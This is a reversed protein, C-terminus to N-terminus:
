PNDPGSDHKDAAAILLPLAANLQNRVSEIIEPTSREIVDHLAKSLLNELMGEIKWSIESQLERALDDLQRNISEDDLLTNSLTPVANDPYMDQDIGSNDDNLLVKDDLLPVGDNDMTVNNM